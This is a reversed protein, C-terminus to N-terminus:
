SVEHSQGWLLREYALRMREEDYVNGKNDWKLDVTTFYSGEMLPLSALNSRQYGVRWAKRRERSCWKGM